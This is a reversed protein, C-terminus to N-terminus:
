SSSDRYLPNGHVDTLNYACFPVLRGDPALVHICCDKLREMDLTWVDQFAMASISLRRTAAQELFDDLTPPEFSSSAGEGCSCSTSSPRPLPASWQRAVSAITRRAGEEAREPEGCCPSPSTLPTLKGDPRVLFNGHFSCLANECGPPAFHGRKVLGQTQEELARMIEPLTVRDDDAPPAPFRGFYSMPQFHVGRVGPVWRVAQRVIAGLDRLNVSRVLTPVLVVGLDARACHEAAREKLAALPRGRLAQHISDETGDFQLFVSSLGADKLRRAHDRNEALRLGNTNLQVFSFGAKRGDEVIGDLDERVTPEGGSLQINCPGGTERVREYWRRVTERSPDAASGARGADAFCVPCRLNCRSTIELLATCTHQRHEPCLGCDFPCGRDVATGYVPLVAPIKPRSWSEMAPPGRWVLAEFAGHEPCRKMLFVDEGRQVRAAKVRRLCYPCLSRTEALLGEAPESM